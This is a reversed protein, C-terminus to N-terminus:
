RRPHAPCPAQGASGPHPWTSAGSEIPRQGRHDLRGLRVAVRNADPSGVRDVGLRRREAPLECAPGELEVAIARPEHARELAVPDPLERAGDARVRAEVRLDLADGAFPEPQLGIRERGLHDGAVAMGLKERREREGGRRELAERGLNAVQRPCLDALDLLRERVPHLAGRCHRVLAVRLDGLPDAAERAHHAARPATPSSFTTRQCSRSM